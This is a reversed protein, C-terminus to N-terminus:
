TTKLLHQLSKEITGYKFEFGADILKKPYVNSSRLITEEALEGLMLKLIFEPVRLWCPRHLVGAIAKCFEENTVVEPAVMNVPGRLGENLICFNIANVLDEIDIWSVLQKGSGQPGGLGARFIPLMSALGGGKTSLVMGIRLLVLRTETGEIIKASEEWDKAVDSLFGKDKALPSQETAAAAENGQFAYIGTGSASIFLKPRHKANFIAKSLFATGTIRSDYIRKKARKTWLQTIKEAALHIVVDIESFDTIPMISEYPNWYLSDKGKKNM